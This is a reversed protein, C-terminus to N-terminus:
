GRGHSKIRGQIPTRAQIKTVDDDLAAEDAAMPIARRSTEGPPNRKETM